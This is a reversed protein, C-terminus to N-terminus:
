PLVEALLVCALCLHAVCLGYIVYHEAGFVTIIGNHFGVLLFEIRIKIADHLVLLRVQIPDITHGVMNVHQNVQM